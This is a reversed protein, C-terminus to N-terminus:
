KQGKKKQIQYRNRQAPSWGTQYFVGNRKVGEKGGKKALVTSDKKPPAKIPKKQVPLPKKPTPKAKPKTVPANGGLGLRSMKAAGPKGSSRLIQGAVYAGGAVAAARAPVNPRRAARAARGPNASKVAQAQKIQTGVRSVKPTASKPPAKTPKPKPRSGQLGRNNVRQSPGQQPATRPGQAGRPTSSAPNTKVTTKPPTKAPTRKTKVSDLAQKLRPSKIESAKSARQEKLLRQQRQRMTEAPKKGKSLKRPM